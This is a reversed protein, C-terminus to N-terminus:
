RQGLTESVLVAVTLVGVAIMGVLSIIWLARDLIVLRQAKRWEPGQKSPMPVEALQHVEEAPLPEGARRSGVNKYTATKPVQISKTDVEGPINIPDSV